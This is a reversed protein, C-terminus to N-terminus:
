KRQSAAKIFGRFVPHPDLPRSQLEPHFQTGVFFPHDALEIIEVLGTEPNVGSVLLGNEEMAQRYESNFEYRHRHRESVIAKGYIKRALTKPLIECTYGGLRMTGGLDKNDLKEQQDKQIDIVPFPTSRDIETTNADLWGVKHRAFEVVALQMGYCLGLYPIKNERIYEIALIKGEVGRAGFGGPVIVGDMEHLQQVKAPDEEFEESNIWHIEAQFRYSYAAHKIAEIVSIYADSLVFNGTSFYKGVIGVKIKRKTKDIKQTFSEWEDLEKKKPRLDLSKLIKNSLMDKEFNLPVHYISEVDPASIINDVPVSCMTSIKKKRIEDLPKESRAIIFDAQLGSGNLLRSAHQTPKTKMEGIKNPVPLYSVLIIAIDEPRELRMMRAAELFLLNEYEGVTGGIEIITIEAESKKQANKIRLIVENPIDPVVSVCKGEFELNREKNIVSQYVLGTTMYNEAPLDRNLFREYNGMDQDCEMGDNLVFTEGHEIPNMTGADVNVYPDIKVATVEFGRSQLILAVSSATIGKGVGSMVGGVVFIYKPHTNKKRVKRARPSM